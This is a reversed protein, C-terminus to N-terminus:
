PGLQKRLAETVVTSMDTDQEACFVALKRALDVPLYLTMRRLTRGDKRSLVQTRRAGNEPEGNRTIPAKKKPAETSM